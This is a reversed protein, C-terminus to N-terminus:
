PIYIPDTIDPLSCYTLHAVLAWSGLAQSTSISVPLSCHYLDVPLLLIVAFSILTPPQANLEPIVKKLEIQFFPSHCLCDFFDSATGTSLFPLLVSQM